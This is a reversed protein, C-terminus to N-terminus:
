FLYEDFKKLFSTANVGSNKYEKEFLQLSEVYYKRCLLKTQYTISVDVLKYFTQVFMQPNSLMAIKVLFDKRPIKSEQYFKSDSKLKQAIQQYM